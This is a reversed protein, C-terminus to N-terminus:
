RLACTARITNSIDLSLLKDDAFVQFASSDLCTDVLMGVNNTPLLTHIYSHTCVYVHLMCTHVHM